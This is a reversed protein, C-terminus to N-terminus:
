LDISRYSFGVSPIFDENELSAKYIQFSKAFRTALNQGLLGNSGLILVKEIM